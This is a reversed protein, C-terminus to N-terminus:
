FRYIGPRLQFHSFQWFSSGKKHEANEDLPPTPGEEMISVAEISLQSV